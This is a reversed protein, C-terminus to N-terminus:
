IDRLIDKIQKIKDSISKISYQYRINNETLERIESDVEVTNGDLSQQNPNRYLFDIAMKSNSSISIHKSNTKVLNHNEDKSQLVSRVDFDRAKYNPTNANAINGAIIEARMSRLRLLNGHDGLLSYEINM